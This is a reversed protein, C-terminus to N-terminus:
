RIERGSPQPEEEDVAQHLSPRGRRRTVKVEPEVEGAAPEPVALPTAAQPALADDTGEGVVVRDRGQQKAEYLGTDAINVLQELNETQNSDAVGFSATFVPSDGDNNRVLGLRVRELVNVAQVRDLEPLVIVFEEGGWRAVLDNERLIDQTTQAFHRLARDGAEHGHTDNLQKFKDLDALALAFLHGGALMERMRTEASRRNTLGTLGDTSAQLQTREFARVTGIRAGAQAALTKLRAIQESALPEGDRGTTHLVGLSRGMFSVPVCVASCAGTARGRLQPCANLTDSSEFVVATGRRVAVCSFPSKVACGPAEATPSGAARSMNARSSDSLLLEMPTHESVQQMAREVVSCVADEEDAMELAESLQGAFGDRRTQAKLEAELSVRDTMDRATLVVGRLQRDTRMDNCKVELTRWEGAASCVRLRFERPGGTAYAGALLARDEEHVVRELGAASLEREPLGVMVALSRSAYRCGGEGLVVVFDSASEFLRRMHAVQRRTTAILACIVLFSLLAVAAVIAAQRARDASGGAAALSLGVSVSAMAAFLLLLAAIARRGTAGYPRAENRSYV